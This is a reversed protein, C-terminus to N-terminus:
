PGNIATSALSPLLSRFSQRRVSYARLARVTRLLRTLWGVDDPKLLRVTGCGEAVRTAAGLDEERTHVRHERRTLDPPLPNAHLEATARLPQQTGRELWRELDPVDM